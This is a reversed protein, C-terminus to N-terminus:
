HKFLANVFSHIFFCADTWFAKIQHFCISELFISVRYVCLAELFIQSSFFTISGFSLKDRHHFIYQKWFADSEIFVIPDLFLKAPYVIAFGGNSLYLM